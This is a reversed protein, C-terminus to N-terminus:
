LQKIYQEFFQSRAITDYNNYGYWQKLYDSVLSKQHEKAQPGGFYGPYIVVLFVESSIDLIEYPKDYRPDLTNENYLRSELGDAHLVQLATLQEYLLASENDNLWYSYLVSELCNVIGTVTILEKNLLQTLVLDETSTVKKLQVLEMVTTLPLSNRELVLKIWYPIFIPRKVNISM